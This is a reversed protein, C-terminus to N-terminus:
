AIKFKDIIDIYIMLEESVCELESKNFLTFFDIIFSEFSEYNLIDINYNKKIEDFMKSFTALSRTKNQSENM